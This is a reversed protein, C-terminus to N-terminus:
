DSASISFGLVAAWLRGYADVTTLISFEQEV